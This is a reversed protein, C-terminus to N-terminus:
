SRQFYFWKAAQSMWRAGHCPCILENNNLKGEHLKAGEHTCINSVAYYRGGVNAILIDKKKQINPYPDNKRRSYWFNEGVFLRAMDITYTLYLQGAYYQISTWLIFPWPWCCIVLYIFISHHFNHWLLSIGYSQQSKQLEVIHFNDCM